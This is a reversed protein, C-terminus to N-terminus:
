VSVLILDKELLRPRLSAVCLFLFSSIFSLKFEKMEESGGFLFSNVKELSLVILLLLYKRFVQQPYIGSSIPRLSPCLM